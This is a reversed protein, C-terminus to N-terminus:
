LSRIWSDKRKEQLTEVELRIREYYVFWFWFSVLIQRVFDYWFLIGTELDGKEGTKIDEGENVTVRKPSWM